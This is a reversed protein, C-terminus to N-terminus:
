CVPKCHKGFDGCTTQVCAQGSPCDAISTCVPTACCEPECPDICVRNEIGGPGGCVCTDPCDPHDTCPSACSNNALCVKGEGCDDGEPKPKCKGKKCRQCPGCRKCKKKKKKRKKAQVVSLKSLSALPGALLLGTVVLAVGRRSPSATFMRLLDDFQDADV